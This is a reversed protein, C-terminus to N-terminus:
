HTQLESRDPGAPEIRIDWPKKALYDRPGYRNSDWLEWTHPAGSGKCTELDLRRWLIPIPRVCARLCGMPQGVLLIAFGINTLRM